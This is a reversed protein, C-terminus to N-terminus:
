ERAAPVRTSNVTSPQMSANTSSTIAQPALPNVVSGNVSKM